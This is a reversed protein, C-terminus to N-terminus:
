LTDLKIRRAWMTAIDPNYLNIDDIITGEEPVKYPNGMYVRAASKKVRDSANSQCIIWKVYDQDIENIQGLTKGAYKYSAIPTDYDDILPLNNPMRKGTEMDVERLMPLGNSM